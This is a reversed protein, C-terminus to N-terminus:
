ITKLLQIKKFQFNHIINESSHLNYDSIKFVESVKKPKKTM